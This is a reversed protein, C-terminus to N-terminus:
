NGDREAWRERVKELNDKAIDSLRLDFETAADALYWFVDGLEERLRDRFREHASGDRLYKKYENLLEGTESALGLLPVVAAATEIKPKQRTKAAESQYEDVHM